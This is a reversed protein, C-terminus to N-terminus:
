WISSSRILIDPAIQPLTSAYYLLIKIDVAVCILYGVGGRNRHGSVRVSEVFDTLTVLLQKLEETKMRLQENKSIM